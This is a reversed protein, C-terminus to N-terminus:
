ENDDDEENNDPADPIRGGTESLLDESFSIRAASAAAVGGEDYGTTYTSAMQGVMGSTGRVGARTANFNFWNGAKGLGIDRASTYADQKAGLYVFSWGRKEFKDISRAVAGASTESANEKGDTIIAMFVGEDDGVVDSLASLSHMVADNLPTMGRPRYDTISLKEVDVSKKMRVKIRLRDEGPQADFFAVWIRAKKNDRFSHLFENCGTVVAEELGCMSGSEDMLIFLHVRGKKAAARAKAAADQADTTSRAM